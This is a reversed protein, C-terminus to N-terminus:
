DQVAVGALQPLETPALRVLVEVAVVVMPEQHGEQEVLFGKGLRERELRLLKFQVVALVAM